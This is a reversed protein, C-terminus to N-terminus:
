LWTIASCYAVRLSITRASTSLRSSAYLYSDRNSVKEQASLPQLRCMTATLKRLTAFRLSTRGRSATSLQGTAPGSAAATVCTCFQRRVCIEVTPSRYISNTQSWSLAVLQTARLLCLVKSVILMQLHIMDQSACWGSKAFAVAKLTLVLRDANPVELPALWLSGPTRGHRHM